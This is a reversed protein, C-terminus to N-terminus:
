SIISMNCAYDVFVPTGDAPQCKYFIHDEAGDYDRDFECGPSIEVVLALKPVENHANARSMILDGPQVKCRKQIEKALEKGYLM